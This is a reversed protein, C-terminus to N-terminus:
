PLLPLLSKDAEIKLHARVEQARERHMELVPLFKLAFNALTVDPSKAAEKYRKIYEKHYDSTEKMYVNEFRDFVMKKLNQVQRTDKEPLAAPLKFGKEKALVEMAAIIKSHDQVMLKGFEKVEFDRAKEQALKALELELMSGLAAKRIFAMTILRRQASSVSDPLVPTDIATHDIPPVTDLPEEVRKAPQCSQVIIITSALIYFLCSSKM